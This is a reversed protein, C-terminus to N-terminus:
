SIRIVSWGKIFDKVTRVSRYYPDLVKADLLRPDIGKLASETLGKETGSEEQLKKVSCLAPHLFPIHTEFFGAVTAHNARRMAVRTEQFVGYVGYAVVGCSFTCTHTHCPPLSYM